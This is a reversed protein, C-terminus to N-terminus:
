RIKFRLIAAIKGFGKLKMGADGESSFIVIEAKNKDALEVVGEADKSTRLYEDLVLLKGIAAAEAAEKVEKLGYAANGDDKHIHIILDEILKMEREFREEGMIKQIVGRNLLENVGSREAYSCGDFTIRKLLDPNKQSLFKKLNDKTFGPGAVIYREPHREIESAIQGFYEREKQEHKEDRKSGGCRFEAGYEVGFARLVAMLAKEEDLVIIRIKPRKSEKEAERLRNVQYNKWDKILKLKSNEAVEITHYRGLQIFEEPHGSIIKGLLRLRNQSKAFEISEIEIRVTVAKKEEKTGVKYTRYSQAEATDGPMLVRELHWLDDLTDPQLKMEGIKRDFHIIKM